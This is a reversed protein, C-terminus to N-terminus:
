EYCESEVEWWCALYYKDESQNIKFLARLFEIREDIYENRKLLLKFTFNILEIIRDKLLELYEGIKYEFVEVIFNKIELLSNGNAFCYEEEFAFFSKTLVISLAM